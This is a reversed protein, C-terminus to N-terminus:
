SGRDGRIKLPGYKASFTIATVQIYYGPRLRGYFASPCCVKAPTGVREFEVVM